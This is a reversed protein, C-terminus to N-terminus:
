RGFDLPPEAMPTPMVPSEIDEELSESVNLGLSKTLGPPGPNISKPGRAKPAKPNPTLTASQEAPSEGEPLEPRGLRRGTGAADTDSDGAPEVFPSQESCLAGSITFGHDDKGDSGGSRCTLEWYAKLETPQDTPRDTKDGLRLINAESKYENWCAMDAILLEGSNLTPANNQGGLTLTKSASGRNLLGASSQEVGDVFWGHIGAGSLRLAVHYWTDRAFTFPSTASTPTGGNWVVPKFSLDDHFEIGYGNDQANGGCEILRDFIANVAGAPIYAWFAVTFNISNFDISASAQMNDAAGDFSFSM